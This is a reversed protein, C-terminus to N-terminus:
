SYARSWDASLAHNVALSSCCLSHLQLDYKSQHESLTMLSEGKEVVTAALIVPHIYECLLSTLGQNQLRARM